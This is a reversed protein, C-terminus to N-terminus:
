SNKSYVIRHIGNKLVQVNFNILLALPHGTARLYNITQSYFIPHLTDVAKLELILRDDVLLDLRGEGM